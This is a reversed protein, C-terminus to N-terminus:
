FPFPKYKKKAERGKIARRVAKTEYAPNVKANQRVKKEGLQSV